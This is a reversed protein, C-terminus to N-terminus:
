RVFRRADTVRREVEVKVAVVVAAAAAAAAAAVSHPLQVVFSPEHRYRKESLACSPMRGSTLHHRRYRRLYTMMDDHWGTTLEDHRAATEADSTQERRRQPRLNQGSTM